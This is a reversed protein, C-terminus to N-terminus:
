LLKKYADIKRQTSAKYEKFTRAKRLLSISYIIQSLCQFILKTSLAIFAYTIATSQFKQIFLYWVISLVVVFFVSASSSYLFKLLKFSENNSNLSIKEVETIENEYHSVLFEVNRAAWNSIKKGLKVTGFKIKYIIQHYIRKFFDTLLNGVVGLLLASLLPNESVWQDLDKFSM